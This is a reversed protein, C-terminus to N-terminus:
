TAGSARVKEPATNGQHKHLSVIRRDEGRWEPLPDCHTALWILCAGYNGPGFVVQFGYPTRRGARVVRGDFYRQKRAGVRAIVTYDTAM